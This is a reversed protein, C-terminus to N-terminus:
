DTGPAAPTAAETTSDAPAAAPAPRAPEKEFVTLGSSGDAEVGVGVRTEGNRDAFVLTSSEDPSVGLVARTKGRRDAFALTATEDSLLGLVARSRGDRDAFAMGPSGDALMTLKLRERGEGDQLALRSAGDPTTGLVARIQGDAGRLVFRRAEVSEAVGGVAGRLVILTVAFLALVAAVMLKGSRRLDRNQRELEDVRRSLAADLERILDAPAIEVESESM